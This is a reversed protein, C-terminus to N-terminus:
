LSKGAEKSEFDYFDGKWMLCKEGQYYSMFSARFKCWRRGTLCRDKGKEVGGRRYFQCTGCNKAVEKYRLM